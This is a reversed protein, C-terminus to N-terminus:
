VTNSTRFLYQGNWAPMELTSDNEENQENKLRNNVISGFYVYAFIEKLNNYMHNDKVLSILSRM